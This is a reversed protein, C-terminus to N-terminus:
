AQEFDLELQEYSAAWPHAKSVGKYNVPVLEGNQAAAMAEDSYLNTTPEHGAMERRIAEASEKTNGKLWFSEGDWTGDENYKILIWADPQENPMPERVLSLYAASM